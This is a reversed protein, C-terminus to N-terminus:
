QNFNNSQEHTGEKEVLKSFDIKGDRILESAVRGLIQKAKESDLEGKIM